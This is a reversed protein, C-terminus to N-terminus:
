FITPHLYSFKQKIFKKRWKWYLIQKACPPERQNRPLGVRVLFANVGQWFLLFFCKYVITKTNNSKWLIFLCCLWFLWILRSQHCRHFPTNFWSSKHTCPMSRVAHVTLITIWHDYNICLHVTTECEYLTVTAHHTRHKEAQTIKSQTNCNARASFIQIM